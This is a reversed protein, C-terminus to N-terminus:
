ILAIKSNWSKVDAYVVRHHAILYFLFCNSKKEFIDIEFKILCVWIKLYKFLCTSEMISKGKESQLYNGIKCIVKM